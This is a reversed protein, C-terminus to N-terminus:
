HTSEGGADANISNGYGCRFLFKPDIENAIEPMLYRQHAAVRRKKESNGAIGIEPKEARQQRQRDKNIARIHQV